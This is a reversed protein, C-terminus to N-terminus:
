RNHPRHQESRLTKLRHSGGDGRCPRGRWVGFTRHRSGLSSSYNLEHTHDGDACMELLNVLSTEVRVVSLSESSDRTVSRIEIIKLDEGWHATEKSMTRHVDGSGVVKVEVFLDHNDERAGPDRTWEAAGVSLVYELPENSDM